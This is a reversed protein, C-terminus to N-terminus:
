KAQKIYALATPVNSGAIFSMGGVRPGSAWLKDTWVVPVQLFENHIRRFLDRDTELWDAPNTIGEAARAAAELEPDEGVLNTTGERIGYRTVVVTASLRPGLGDSHMVNDERAVVRPRFDAWRSRTLSGRINLNQEWMQAVAEGMRVALDGARPIDILRFEDYTFGDAYGADALLQRARQPDFPIPKAIDQYYNIGSPPVHPFYAPVGLGQFITDVILQRDIALNMAERVKRAKEREVPDSWDAIWPLSPKFAERWPGYMGGFVIFIYVSEPMSRVTLSPDNKVDALQEPGIDAIDIQGTKLMAVRTSVEPVARIELEAFEPTVRWHNSVASVRIFEKDRMDEFQWPGTGVPNRGYEEDGVDDYHAKSMMYPGRWPEQALVHPVLFLNPSTFDFTVSYRGNVVVSELNSRWVGSSGHLAGESAVLEMSFKVDEATFEGNGRHFPVGQRLTFDAGKSDDHLKWSSALMPGFKAYEDFDASVLFEGFTAGEIMVELIKNSKLTFTRDAMTSIALIVKGQPGLTPTATPTPTAAPAAPTPTATPRACAVGAVAVLMLLVLFGTRFKGTQRYKQVQTKM